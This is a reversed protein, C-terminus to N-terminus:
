TLEVATPVSTCVAKPGRHRAGCIGPTAERKHFPNGAASMKRSVAAEFCIANQNPFM